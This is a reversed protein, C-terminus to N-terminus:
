HGLRNLLDRVHVQDAKYNGTLTYMVLNVGGRLAMERQRAGGEGYPYLPAGNPSAAWAGALDNSVIVIPSVSDGARAPRQVGPQEPPTAEIWTVGNATRGVFEDLLYFTKTAVHDRPLVELEPVDVGNLFTQLWRSEASQPAGPRANAADRTDFVMAGGQKMYAAIKQRALSSPQPQGPAVPWYILPYFSLDDRAPDLGVPPGPSFSTREALIRSLEQLGLRSASDLRADGTVVYALRTKLAADIDQQPIKRAAGPQEQAFAREPASVFALTFLASFAVLLLAPTARRTNELLGGSIRRFGGGAWLGVLMDILFLVVFSMLIIPRLDLAQTGEIAQSQINLGSLDLPRLVEGAGLANLASMAPPRGYFGAPHTADSRALNKALAQAQATPEVLAGFGDLVRWPARPAQELGGDAHSSAGGEASMAVIKRLMEPFLGSIPLNSWDADATVHFLVLLGRGRREATVLPTKDALQAWTREALGPAPEALLQRRVSVDQPVRMGFFPSDREFDGLKKPQEWSLAGGLTRGGRRLRVPVLEDNAGALHTGAFRVVVGGEDMFRSVREATPGPAIVVDALFLVSAGDEILSIIPDAAGGRPERLDAFTQLAKALYYNPALLPQSVDLTAGSYLGVKRRRANEDILAVAGSSQADDIRLLAVANRLEIPLEIRAEGVGTKIQFPAEGLKAGKLDFASVRGEAGDSEGLTVVPAVLAGAENRAPTLARLSRKRTAVEFRGQTLGQLHAAFERAGPRDLGDALWVVEPNKAGGLAAAVGDLVNALDPTFSKPKLASLADRAAAANMMKPPAGGLSVPALATPAGARGAAEIRSKAYAMRASWDSAAAWGDDIILILADGSQAGLQANWVPGALGVIAFLAMLLRLLLIPWPIRQPTEERARQGLLIRLPPFDVIEPRPPTLRLVIWVLPLAALGALAWPALFSLAGM